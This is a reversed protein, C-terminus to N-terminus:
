ALTIILEGHSHVLDMLTQAVSSTVSTSHYLTLVAVVTHLDRNETTPPLM